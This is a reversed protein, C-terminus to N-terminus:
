SKRIKSSSSPCHHGRLQLSDLVVHRSSSLSAVPLTHTPLSSPYLWAFPAISIMNDAALGGSWDAYIEGFSVKSGVKVMTWAVIVEQIRDM